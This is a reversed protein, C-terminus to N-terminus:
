GARCCCKARVSIQEEAQTQGVREAARSYKGASLESLNAINKAGEEKRRRNSGVM